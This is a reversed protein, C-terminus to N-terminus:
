SEREKKGALERRARSGERDFYVIATAAPLSSRKIQTGILTPAWHKFWQGRLRIVTEPEDPRHKRDKACSKCLLAESHLFYGGAERPHAIAECMSCCFRLAEADIAPHHTTMATCTTHVGAQL